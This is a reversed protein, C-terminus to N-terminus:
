HDACGHEEVRGPAGKVLMQPTGSASKSLLGAHLEQNRANLFELLFFRLLIRGYQWAQISRDSSWRVQM